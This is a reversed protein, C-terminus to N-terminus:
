ATLTQGTDQILVEYPIGLGKHLRRIMALSLGRQGSLVESVKSKSGIFPVLDDQTLGQQDMRFRIASLPGPPEIPHHRREYEDVLLSWLELRDGAPSGPAASMLTDVIALAADYDAETKLVKPDM